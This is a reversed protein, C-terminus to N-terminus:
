AGDALGPIVEYRAPCRQEADQHFSAPHRGIVPRLNDDAAPSVATQAVFHPNVTASRISMPSGFTLM